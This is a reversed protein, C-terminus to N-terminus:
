DDLNIITLKDDKIGMIQSKGPIQIAFDIDSYNLSRISKGKSNYIQMNHHDMACYIQKEQIYIINSLPFPDTGELHGIAKTLDNSKYIFISNPKPTRNYEFQNIGPYNVALQKGNQLFSLSYKTRPGVEEYKLSTGVIKFKHLYRCPCYLYKGDPSLKLLNWIFTSFGGDDYHHKISNKFKRALDNFDITNVIENANLDLIYLDRDQPCYALDSHPTARVAILEKVPFSKIHKLTHRDLLTIHQIRDHEMFVVLYSKALSINKVPMVLKIIAKCKLGDFSCKRITGNKSATYFFKKDPSQLLSTLKETSKFQTIPRKDYKGKPIKKLPEDRTAAIGMKLPAPLAKGIQNPIDLNGSPILNESVEAVALAYKSQLLIKNSLPNIMNRNIVPRPTKKGNSFTWGKIFKGNTGNYLNFGCSDGYYILNRKTDIAMTNIGHKQPLTMIPDCINQTFYVKGTDHNLLYKANLSLDRRYRKLIGPIIKNLQILSANPSKPTRLIFEFLRRNDYAYLRSGDATMKLSNFSVRLLAKSSKCSDLKRILRGKLTDIMYLNSHIGYVAIDSYPSSEIRRIFKLDLKWKIKFNDPDLQWMQQKTIVLVGTRCINLQSIPQHIDVEMTQILNPFTIKALKGRSDATYFSKYDKSWAIMNAYNKLKVTRTVNLSDQTFSNDKLDINTKRAAWLNNDAGELDEALWDDDNSTKTSQTSPKKMIAKHLDIPIPLVKSYIIEDSKLVMKVQGWFLSIPGPVSIYGIAQQNHIETPQMSKKLKELCLKEKMTASHPILSVFVKEITNLPNYLSVITKVKYMGNTLKVVEPYDARSIAGSNILNILDVSIIRGLRTNPIKADIIGILHGNKDIVPAGASTHPIDADFLIFIAHGNKEKQIQTISGTKISMNGIKDFSPFYIPMTQFLKPVKRSFFNGSPTKQDVSIVTLNQSPYSCVFKGPIPMKTTRGSHLTVKLSSTNTLESLTTLIYTKGNSQKLITGTSHFVGNSNQTEIMATHIKLQKIVNEPLEAYLKHTVFFCLLLITSLYKKM